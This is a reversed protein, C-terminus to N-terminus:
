HIRIRSNLDTVKLVDVVVFFNVFKKRIVNRLYPVPVKVDNKISLFDYLLCLVTLILTKKVIKAQHYFFVSGYLQFYIRIRIRGPGLFM